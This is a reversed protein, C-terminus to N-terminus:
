EEVKKEPDTYLFFDVSSDEVEVAMSGLIKKVAQLTFAQKGAQEVPQNFRNGSNPQVDDVL